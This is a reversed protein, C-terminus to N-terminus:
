AAERRQNLYSEGRRRCADFAAPLVFCRPNFTAPAEGLVRFSFADDPEYIVGPQWPLEITGRSPDHKDVVKCGPLLGEVYARNVAGPFEDSDNLVNPHFLSSLTLRQVMPADRRTHFWSTRTRPNALEIIIGQGGSLWSQLPALFSEHIGESEDMIILQYPSHMGQLREGAKGGEMSATAIRIFHKASHEDGSTLMMPGRIFRDLVEGPLGKGRRIDKIDQLIQEKAQEAKPAVISIVCPTFVDFFYSAFFATVYSKGTGNGGPGQVETKIVSGPVYATLQDATIEGRQLLRREHQQLMSRDLAELLEVQGPHDHPERGCCTCGTVGRWVQMKLKERVYDLVRFRYPAFPNVYGDGEGQGHVKTASESFGSSGLPRCFKASKPAARRQLPARYMAM